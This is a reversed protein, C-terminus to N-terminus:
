IVQIRFIHQADENTKQDEGRERERESDRERERWSHLLTERELFVGAGVWNCNYHLFLSDLMTHATTLGM